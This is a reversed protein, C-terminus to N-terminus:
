KVENGESKTSYGKRTIPYIGQPPLISLYDRYAIGTLPSRLEPDLELLPELAFCREILRPHPIVLDETNVVEDGYLLIDIDLTRPGMRIERGRDRGFDAEIKHLESLLHTPSFGTYGSIVANLYDPQDSLHMPTTEYIRSSSLSELLQNLREIGERIFFARDGVNSGLSLFIKTM